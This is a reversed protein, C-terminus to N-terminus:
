LRAAIAMEGASTTAPSFETGLEQLHMSRRVAVTGARDIRATALRYENQQATQYSWMVEYDSGTWAVAIGWPILNSLTVSRRVNVGTEADVLVADVNATTVMTDYGKRRVAILFDHGSSAVAARIEIAATAIHTLGSDLLTGDAAVRFAVIQDPLPICPDYFCSVNATTWVVLFRRGDWAV